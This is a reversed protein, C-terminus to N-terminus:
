KLRIVTVGLGGEGLAGQRSSAVRPDARLLTRIAKLLVGEGVGHIVLVEQVGSLVARDLFRDVAELADERTEGRVDVSTTPLPEASINIPIEVEPTEAQVAGEPTTKYLNWKRVSLRKGNMDIVATDGNLEVVRGSPQGSPSLSVMDGRAVRKAKRPEPTKERVDELMEKVRAHAEVVASKGAETERIRKVLAEIERRAEVLLGEVDKRVREQQAEKFKSLAEEKESYKAILRNLADSQVRLAERERELALQTSELQSLVIELRYPEEGLLAEAERVVAPDFDLRRATEIGRSRGATGQLLRYLPKDNADDFAMSANEVGATRLAYMKVKGYHTTAVITAGRSRLRELTAIALASGEDPDTGDGIEDILCLTGADSERCMVDLHRLHSTFTSLSTAISQEDGIDAHVEGFLPLSTGEGVPVPLGSQFLLVALGLTKLCVTKGGANPGTIVLVRKEPVLTLNLPVVARGAGERRVSLELLPHRADVLRVAGDDSVRPNTCRFEAAFRAEAELVDLTEWLRINEFLEDSSATVLSALEGLIRAEENREDHALTEIANNKEVLAFPEYYLSEGTHSSAHVLGEKKRCKERPVLLVHRTGTYTAYESSGYSKALTEAFRRLDERSRAMERRISHLRPSATDKISADRDIARQIADVLERHPTFRSVIGRLTPYRSDAATKRQFEIGSREIEAIDLLGEPPIIEHRRVAREIWESCRTEAIPMHGLTAHYDRVESIERLREEIWDRDESPRLLRVREKSGANVCKAAIVALVSAFELIEGAHVFAHARPGPQASDRNM